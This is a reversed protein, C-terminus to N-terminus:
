MLLADFNLLFYVLFTHQFQIKKELNLNVSDARDCNNCATGNEKKLHPINASISGSTQKEHERTTKPQIQGTDSDDSDIVEVIQYDLDVVQESAADSEKSEVIKYSGQTEASNQNSETNPIVKPTKGEMIAVCSNTTGLDIGIIKSM